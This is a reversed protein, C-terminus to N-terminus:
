EPPPIPEERPILDLPLPRYGAPQRVLQLRLVSEGELAIEARLPLFALGLSEVEWRGPPLEDVAFTGSGDTVTERPDASGDVRVFRIKVDSLAAGELESATGRVRAPAGGEPASSGASPLVASGPKMVVEVVGRFPPKLVIGPKLIPLLGDRFFGVQYTGEPLGDVRFAGRSDTSTFVYRRGNGESGVVVTAGAVPRNRELLASGQIRSTAASVAPAISLILVFALIPRM